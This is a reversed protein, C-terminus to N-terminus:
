KVQAQTDRGRSRGAVGGAVAFSRVKRDQHEMAVVMPPTDLAMTPRLMLAAPLLSPRSILRLVTSRTDATYTGTAMMMIRYASNVYSHRLLNICLFCTLAHPQACCAPLSAPLSAPLHPCLLGATKQRLGRKLWHEASCAGSLRIHHEASVQLPQSGGSIAPAVCVCQHLQQAAQASRDAAHASRDAARCTPKKSSLTPGMVSAQMTMIVSTAIVMMAKM